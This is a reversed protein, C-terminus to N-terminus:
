LEAPYARFCLMIPFSAFWMSMKSLGHIVCIPIFYTDWRGGEHELLGVTPSLVGQIEDWQKWM